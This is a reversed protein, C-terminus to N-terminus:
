LAQCFLSLRTVDYNEPDSRLMAAFLPAGFECPEDIWRDDSSRFLELAEDFSMSEFDPTGAAGEAPKAPANKHHQAMAPAAVLALATLMSVGFAKRFISM